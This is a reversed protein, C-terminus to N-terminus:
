LSGRTISQKYETNSSKGGDPIEKLASDNWNNILVGKVDADLMIAACAMVHGLQHAGSDRDIKEGSLFAALHRRLASYYTRVDVGTERWNHYGYKADGHAHCKVWEVEATDPVVSYDLKATGSKLKPNSTYTM